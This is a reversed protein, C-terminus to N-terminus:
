IENSGSAALKVSTPMDHIMTMSVLGEQFNGQIKYQFGQINILKNYNYSYAFYNPCQTGVLLHCKQVLFEVLIALNRGKKLSLFRWFTKFESYGQEM